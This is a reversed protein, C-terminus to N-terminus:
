VNPNYDDKAALHEGTLLVKKGNTRARRWIGDTKLSELLKEMM